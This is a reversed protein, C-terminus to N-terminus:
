FRILSMNQYKQNLQPQSNTFVHEGPQYGRAQWDLSPQDQLSSLFYASHTQCKAWAKSAVAFFSGVIEKEGRKWGEKARGSWREIRETVALCDERWNKKEEEDQRGERGWGEKREAVSRRRDCSDTHPSFLRPHLESAWVEGETFCGTSSKM